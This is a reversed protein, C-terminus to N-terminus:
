PTGLAALPERQPKKPIETRLVSCVAAGERHPAPFCCYFPPNLSRRESRARTLASSDRGTDLNAAARGLRRGEHGGYAASRAPSNQAKNTGLGEATAAPFCSGAKPSPLPASFARPTSARSRASSSSSVREERGGSHNERQNQLGSRPSQARRSEQRSRFHERVNEKVLCEPPPTRPPPCAAPAPSASPTGGRGATGPPCWPPAASPEAGQHMAQGLSEAGHVCRTRDGHESGGAPAPLSSQEGCLCRPPVVPPSSVIRACAAQPATSSSGPAPADGM